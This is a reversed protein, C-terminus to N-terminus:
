LDKKWLGHLNCYEYAAIAKDDETLAFTAESKEGPKLTKRQGGKVTELYIWQIYHAELMPHEVSGVAVHALNGDVTVVPVHKEQAADVTNPVLEAMAEGCCAVNVGSDYVMGVINGCHKCVFFKRESM